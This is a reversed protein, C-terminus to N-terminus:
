RVALGETKLGHLPDLQLDMALTLRGGKSSRFHLIHEMSLSILLVDFVEVVEWFWVPSFDILVQLNFADEHETSEFLVTFSRTIKPDEARELASKGPLSAFHYALSFRRFSSKIM